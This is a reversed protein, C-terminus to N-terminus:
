VEKKSAANVPLWIRFVAGNEGPSSVFEIMGGHQQIIERCLSLGLGTGEARTTFFPEFLHARADPTVGQGTDSITLEIQDPSKLSRSTWTLTGGKSMSFLANTMLNVLVQRLRGDSGIMM